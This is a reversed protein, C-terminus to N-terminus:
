SGAGVPGGPGGAPTDDVGSDIPRTPDRLAIRQGPELGEEIVVRSLSTSGLTVEVAEFEGGDRVYVVKKDDEEFIAQRPVTVVESQDPLSIVARVRQGPKMLETDTSDLELTVGFYQVPVRRNRRQALADVKKVSATYARDPHAEIVM